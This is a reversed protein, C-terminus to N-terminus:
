WASTRPTRTPGCTSSGTATISPTSTARRRPLVVQFAGDPQDRLSYRAEYTDISTSRLFLMKRDKSGGLHVNFLKDKEQYVPENEDGLAHRWLINARKTVPDETTYFLTRNDACWRVSTVREATDPLTAGTRLDKVHLRYQRFGTTDVTYALLHADDSVEFAGVSLFKFGKALENADLLVEEAGDGGFPGGPTAKKRCRIPYQKGEETRSYYFYGDRLAPVDQDTQKIHGLMEQYLAEAFPKLEKTLAETYANEAELYKIVAPNSKERLWFFPDNVKEGHWVSIHEVQAASPPESQSQARVVASFAFWALVWFPSCLRM